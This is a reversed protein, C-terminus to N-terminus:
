RGAGWPDSHNRYRGLKEPQRPRDPCIVQHVRALLMLEALAEPDLQPGGPMDGRWIRGFYENLEPYGWMLGISRAVDSFREELVSRNHAATGAPALTRQAPRHLPQITQVPLKHERM